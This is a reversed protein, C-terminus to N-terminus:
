RAAAEPPAPELASLFAQAARNEPTIELVRRFAKAAAEPEASFRLNYGYVLHAQADYPKSILYRELAAMQEVFVKPDGYYERKDTTATALAPDLRVAEGILFAAYYYDGNAFAADALEFHLPADDPAYTRARGYADAAETFRGAAFYFRGLEVYKAALDDAPLARAGEAPLSAAGAGVGGAVVGGAVITGGDDPEGASTDTVIVVSSPVQLYTPCYTSSPYWWYDSTSYYPRSWHRYWSYSYCDDWWNARYSIWPSWLCTSWSFAGASWRWSWSSNWTSSHRCWPDWWSGWFLNGHHGHSHHSSGYHSGYRGVGTAGTILSSSSRPARLTPTTSRPVLTPRLARAGDATRGTRRNTTAGARVTARDRISDPSRGTATPTRVVGSTVPQRATPRRTADPRNPSYRRDTLNPRRTTTADDGRRIDRTTTTPLVRRPASPRDIRTSPRTITGGVPRSINGDRRTSTGPAPVPRTISPQRATVPPIDSRNGRNSPSPITPASPTTPRTRPTIVRPTRTPAQPQRYVNDRATPPRQPAPRPAVVRPTPAPAQASPRPSPRPAPAVPRPSPRPAPAVPRPSPRPAQASPRPRPTPRSQSGRQATLPVALGFLLLVILATCRRTNM